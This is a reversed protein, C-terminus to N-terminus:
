RGTNPDTLHAVELADEGPQVIGLAFGGECETPRDRDHDECVPSGSAPTSSWLAGSMAERAFAKGGGCLNRGRRSSAFSISHALFRIIVGARYRASSPSWSGGIGASRISRM